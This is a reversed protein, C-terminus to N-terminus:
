IRQDGGESTSILLHPPSSSGSALMGKPRTPTDSPIRVLPPRGGTSSSNPSEQSRSSSSYGANILSRRLRDKQKQQLRIRWVKYFKTVLLSNPRSITQGLRFEDVAARRRLWPDDIGSREMSSDCSSLNSAEEPLSESQDSPTTSNPTSPSTSNTAYDLRLSGSPRIPAMSLTSALRGLNPRPRSRQWCLTLEITLDARKRVPRSYNFAPVGQITLTPAYPLILQSAMSRLRRRHLSALQLADFIEPVDQFHTELHDTVAPDTHMGMGRLAHGTLQRAKQTFDDHDAAHDGLHDAAKVDPVELSGFLGWFDTYSPLDSTFSPEMDARKKVTM